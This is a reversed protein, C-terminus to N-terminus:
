AEEKKTNCLAIIVVVVLCVIVAIKGNLGPGGASAEADATAAAAAGAALKFNHCFAAGVTMGLVAITSDSSGSGALILQRLPCGGRGGTAGVILNGILVAAFIAIFGWLLHFDKFMFADRIGGAMCLRSLPHQLICRM